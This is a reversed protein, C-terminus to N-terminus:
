GALANLEASRRMEARYWEITRELGAHFGARPEYGLYERARSIDALSHQIDGKRAPLFKPGRTFHLVDAIAQYTELLTHREGCAINFVEGSVVAADASAALMNAEVVDDIFTFDRSQTGDGYIEPRNNLLMSTIFRALVGSYTSNASQRPGFVNFYRLSVTEVGYVRAFCHMYYEGTLKQIAYPSIPAPLMKEHKPLIESDGYAASSAAYVIRRVGQRRAELLLNLTGDVNAMHSTLPDAISGAVSPLAAQHFIIDVGTCLKRLLKRDTLNGRYFEIEEIVDAINGLRGACLNDIGRVEYSRAVCERAIFSGIFGAIGTILVRPMAIVRRVIFRNNDSSV